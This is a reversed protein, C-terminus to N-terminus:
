CCCGSGWCSVQEREADLLKRLRSAEDDAERLRRALGDREDALAAHDEVRVHHELRGSELELIRQELAYRREGFSLLSVARLVQFIKEFAAANAAVGSGKVPL